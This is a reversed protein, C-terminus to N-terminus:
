LLSVTQGQKSFHFAFGWRGTQGTSIIRCSHGACGSSVPARLSAWGAPSDCVLLCRTDEQWGLTM